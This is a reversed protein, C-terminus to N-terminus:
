LFGTDSYSCWAYSLENLAASAQDGSLSFPKECYVHKGARATAILPDYHQLHPTAIVLADVAEKDLVHDLDDGLKLSHTQCYDHVKHPSRTVAHTVELHQCDLSAKHLLQGWRGFGLIATKVKDAM